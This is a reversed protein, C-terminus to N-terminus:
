ASVYRVEIPTHSSAKRSEAVALASRRYLRTSVSIRLQLTSAGGLFSVNTVFVLQTQLYGFTGFYEHIKVDISLWCWHVLGLSAGGALVRCTLVALMPPYFAWRATVEGRKLRSSPQDSIRGPLLRETRM